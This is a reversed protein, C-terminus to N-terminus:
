CLFRWSRLARRYLVHIVRFDVEDRPRQLLQWLGRFLGRFPPSPPPPPANRCVCPGNRTAATLPYAGSKSQRVGALLHRRDTVALAQVHDNKGAHGM